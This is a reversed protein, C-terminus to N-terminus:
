RCRSCNAAFIKSGLPSSIGSDPIYIVPFPVVLHRNIPWFEAPHLRSSKRKERGVNSATREGPYNICFPPFIGYPGIATPPPSSPPPFFCAASSFLFPRLFAVRCNRLCPGRRDIIFDRAINEDRHSPWCQRKAPSGRALTGGATIGVRPLSQIEDPPSGKALWRGRSGRSKERRHFDRNKKSRFFNFIQVM